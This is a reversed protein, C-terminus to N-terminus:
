LTLGKYNREFVSQAMKSAVDFNQELKDTNKKIYDTLEGLPIKSLRQIENCIFEIRQHPNEIDDYSEDILDPFSEFGWIRLDKLTHPSSVEIFPRATLACKILKESYCPGHGNFVTECNITIASNIHPRVSEYTMSQGIHSGPQRQQELMTYESEKLNLFRNFNYYWEHYDCNSYSWHSQSLLNKETLFKHIYYNHDHRSNSLRCFHKNIEDLRLTFTNNIEYIPAVLHGPWYRTVNFDNQKFIDYYFKDNVFISVQKLCKYIRNLLFDWDWQQQSECNEEFIFCIERPNINPNSNIIENYSSLMQDLVLSFDPEDIDRM